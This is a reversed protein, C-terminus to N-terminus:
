ANTSEPSTAVVLSVQNLGPTKILAKAGILPKAVRNKVKKNSIMPKDTRRIQLEISPPEPPVQTPLQLPNPQLAL